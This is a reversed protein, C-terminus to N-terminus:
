LINYKDAERLYEHTIHKVEHLTMRLLNFGLFGTLISFGLLVQPIELLEGALLTGLGGHGVFHNVITFSGIIPVTCDRIQFFVGYKDSWFIYAIIFFNAVAIVLLMFSFLGGQGFYYSLGMLAMVGMFLFVQRSLFINKLGYVHAKWWKKQIAKFFESQIKRLEYFHRKTKWSDLVAEFSEGQTMRELAKETYHDTLEFVLEPSDIGWRKLFDILKLHEQTTLEKM